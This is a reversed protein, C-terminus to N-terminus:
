DVILGEDLFDKNLLSLTVEYNQDCISLHQIILLAYDTLYSKLYQIRTANSGTIRLIHWSIRSPLNIRQLEVVLPSHGWWFNWYPLQSMLTRIQLSWHTGSRLIMRLDDLWSHHIRTKYFTKKLIFFRM